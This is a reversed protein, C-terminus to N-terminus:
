FDQSVFYGPSSFIGFFMMDFLCNIQVKSVTSLQEIIAIRSSISHQRHSGMAVSFSASLASMEVAVLAAM